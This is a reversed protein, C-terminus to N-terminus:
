NKQELFYLMYAIVLLDACGGPSINKKIFLQDMRSTFSLVEDMSNDPAKMFENIERQVQNEITLNARFLLNTDHVHAILNLLAVVGANNLSIGKETLNQLIPLAYEKVSSFGSSVEGRIGTIGYQAYLKEGHTKATELTVNKFDDWSHAAMEQCLNCLFYVDNPYGNEYIYGRAACLIGLSYILGKHTNVGKTQAFMADEAQRGIYRIAQFLQAPTGDCNLGKLVFKKFYPTLITTSDIFTFFNMDSHAGNNTRDVLGPKPTTAVEYLMARAALQATKDAFRNDFYDRIIHVTKSFLESVSHSRSRGCVLAPNECLLCKREAKKIADRSIKHGNEHFIDIDFLRAFSSCEEIEVCWNKITEAAGNLIFFGEYGTKETTEYYKLIPVNHRELEKVILRKGEDFAKKALPFVKVPGALNLTFCILPLGYQALLQKQCKARTERASLMEALTVPIGNTEDSRKTKQM